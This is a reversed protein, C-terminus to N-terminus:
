HGIPRFRRYLGFLAVAAVAAALRPVWMWFASLGLAMFIIPDEIIAHNIGISIHLNELEDAPIVGDKTEEVIVAAGYALGFVAAVVWLFAVRRSLGLPMLLPALAAAVHDMLGLSKMVELLIILAMLVVLMMLALRGFSLLWGTIMEGFPRAAEATQAAMPSLDAQPFWFSMLWVALVAALLRAATVKIWSVGSQHQIVGEQILNHCILIFVAMMTMQGITFPIATMAAIAGYLGTLIGILLPLAAEAPLGILTMLPSFLPDLKVLLGSWALLSTGLSIPALIKLMWLYGRWGKAIGSRFGTALKDKFDTM